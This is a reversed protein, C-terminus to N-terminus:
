GRSAAIDSVIEHCAKSIYCCIGPAACFFPLTDFSQPAAGGSEFQTNIDVGQLNASSQKTTGAPAARALGQPRPAVPKATPQV